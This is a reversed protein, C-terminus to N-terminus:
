PISALENVVLARLGLGATPDYGIRATASVISNGEDADLAEWDTYVLAADLRFMRTSYTTGATTLAPGPIEIRAQCPTGARFLAKQAVANADHEFTLSLEAEFSDRDFYHFAFKRGGGGAESDLTWKARWGTTVSLEWQLLLESIQTGGLTGAVADLYLKSRGALIEHVTPSTLAPTFTANAVGRGVWDASMMVAQGREASLTFKEVFSYEMEEAQQNDGTEITYTKIPPLTTVGYAYSWVKGSGSGDSGPSGITHMGAEFIHVLQEYTAPTAAMSLSGGYQGIYRRTTPLAVGILEDVMVVQTTDKLMGGVGRWITSAAVATGPTTERGLQIKQAWKQGM